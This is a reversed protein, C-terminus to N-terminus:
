RNQTANYYLEEATLITQGTPYQRKSCLSLAFSYTTNKNLYTLVQYGSPHNGVDSRGLLKLLHIRIIISKLNQLIKHTIM